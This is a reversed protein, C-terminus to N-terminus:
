RYSIAENFGKLIFAPTWGRFSSSKKLLRYYASAVDHSESVFMVNETELEIVEYVSKDKNHQVKYKFTSAGM